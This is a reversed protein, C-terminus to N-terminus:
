SIIYATKPGDSGKELRGKNNNESTVEKLWIKIYKAKNEKMLRSHDVKKHASFM